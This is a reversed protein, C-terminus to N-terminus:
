YIKTNKLIKLLMKKKIIRFTLNNDDFNKRYSTYKKACFDFVHRTERDLKRYKSLNRTTRLRQLIIEKGNLM